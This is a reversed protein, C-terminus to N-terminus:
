EASFVYGVGRVTRIPSREANGLKRRLHGVHVDIAREYPSAERQYLVAAIEDRSVVRGASRALLDLIDFEVGTVTLSVGDRWVERTTADIRLSGVQIPKRRAAVDTRGRRLVARVRAVLENPNFPKPLYDDAGSELGAIRDHAAARGTLMIVPVDSRRRLQGLVELGDLMPLMGDLIVLDHEGSLARALGERGDVAAEFRFGQQRLYEGM